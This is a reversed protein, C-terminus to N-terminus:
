PRLLLTFYHVLLSDSWDRIGMAKDLIRGTRDIIYTEPVKFTGYRKSVGGDPDLLVAFTPTRGKLAKQFFPDIVKRGESDISVSLM